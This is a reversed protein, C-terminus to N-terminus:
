RAVPDSDGRSAREHEDVPEYTEFISDNDDWTHLEGDPRALFVIGPDQSSGPLVTDVSNKPWVEGTPQGTHDRLVLDRTLRIRDGVRLGCEYQQVDGREVLNWKERAM